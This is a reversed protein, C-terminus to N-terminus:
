LELVARILLASGQVPEFGAGLRRMLSLMPANTRLVEGHLRHVGRRAAHRALSRLLASGLGVRQWRDSVALAFEGDAGGTGLVYRADAVILPEDEDDLSEAVVAVHDRHDVETLLRLLDPPLEHLAVHFRQQRAAPSLGRVFAQEAEADWALVPRVVVHRGDALTLRDVLATPYRPAHAVAPSAPPAGALAPSWPSRPALM